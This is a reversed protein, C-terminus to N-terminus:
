GGRRRKPLRESAEQAEAIAKTKAFKKNGDIKVKKKSKPKATNIDKEIKSIKAKL